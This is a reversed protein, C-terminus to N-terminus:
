MDSGMNYVYAVDIQDIFRMSFEVFCSISKAAREELNAQSKAVHIKCVRTKACQLIMPFRSAM